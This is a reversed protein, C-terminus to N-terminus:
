NTSAPQELIRVFPRQEVNNGGNLIPEILNQVNQNWNSNQTSTFGQLNDRVDRVVSNVQGGEVPQLHFTIPQNQGQITNPDVQITSGVSNGQPTMGVENNDQQQPTIITNIIGSLSLENLQDSNMNLTPLEVEPDSIALIDPLIDIETARVAMSGM